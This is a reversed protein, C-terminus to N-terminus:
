SQARDHQSAQLPELVIQGAGPTRLREIGATGNQAAMDRIRKLQEIAELSPSYADRWKDTQDISAM